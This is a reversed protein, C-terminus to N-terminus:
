WLLTERLIQQLEDILSVVSRARLDTQRLQDALVEDAQLQVALAQRQIRALESRARDDFGDIAPVESLRAGEERLSIGRLRVQSLEREITSVALRVDDLDRLRREFSARLASSRDLDDRADFVRWRLCHLSQSKGRWRFSAFGSHRQADDLPYQSVEGALIKGAQPRVAARRRDPSDAQM